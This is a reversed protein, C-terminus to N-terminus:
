DATIIVYRSTDTFNFYKTNQFDSYYMRDFTFFAVKNEPLHYFMNKISDSVVWISESKGTEATSLLWFEYPTGWYDLLIKKPALDAEIFIKKNMNQDLFTEEWLYREKYIDSIM